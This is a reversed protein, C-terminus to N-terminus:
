RRRLRLRRLLLHARPPSRPNGCSAAKKEELSNRILGILEDADIVSKTDPEIAEQKSKSLAARITAAFPNNAQHNKTRM